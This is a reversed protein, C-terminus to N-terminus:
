KEVLETIQFQTIPIILTQVGDRLCEKKVEGSIEYNTSTSDKAVNWKTDIEGCAKVPLLYKEKGQNIQEIAFYGNGLYAAKAKDIRMTTVGDCGCDPTADDKSCSLSTLVLALILIHTYTAMKMM